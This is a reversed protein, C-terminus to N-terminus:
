KLIYLYVKDTYLYLYMYLYLYLYLQKYRGKQANLVM